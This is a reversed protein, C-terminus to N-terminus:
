DDSENEVMWQNPGTADLKTDKSASAQRLTLVSDPLVRDTYPRTLRVTVGEAVRPRRLESPLRQEVWGAIEHAKNVLREAEVSDVPKGKAKPVGRHALSNRASRLEQFAQWLGADQKLSEGVFVKLLVDFQETVSPEKSWHDRSNIWEWLEDPVSKTISSLRNLVDEIMVELGASALAIAAGVEPLQASADLLLLDWVPPVYEAKLSALREWCGKTLISFAHRQPSHYMGRVFESNPLPSGDDHLYQLAFFTTEVDLRRLNAAGMTVRLKEIVDNGIEVALEVPPDHPWSERRRQGGDAVRPKLPRDFAVKHFDLRLADVALTPKDNVTVADTIVSVCNNTLAEGIARTPTDSIIDFAERPVGSSCPPHILVEYGGREARLPTLTHDAPIFLRDALLFTFRAIM